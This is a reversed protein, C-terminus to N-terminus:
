TMTMIRIITIITTMKIAMIKAMTMIMILTVKITMIM